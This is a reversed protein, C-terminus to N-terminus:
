PRRASSELQAFERSQRVWEDRRIRGKFATLQSDVYEIDAPTWDAVQWFYFVGIGHLM